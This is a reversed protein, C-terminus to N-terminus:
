RESPRRAETTRVNVLKFREGQWRYTREVYSSPCCTPDGAEFGPVGLRLLHSRAAATVRYLHESKFVVRLRRDRRSSLVYVAVDQASTGAYIRVIADSRGDGTLDAFLIDRDVRWTGDRLNRRVERDVGRSKEIEDGFFRQARTLTAAAPAPSATALALLALPAALSARRKM